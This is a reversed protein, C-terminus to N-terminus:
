PLSRAASALPGNGMVLVPYDSFCLDTLPFQWEEYPRLPISFEGIKDDASVTKVSAYDTAWCLAEGRNTDGVIRRLLSSIGSVM